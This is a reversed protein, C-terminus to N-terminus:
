HLSTLKLLLNRGERAYHKHFVHCHAIWELELLNHVAAAVQAGQYVHGLAVVHERLIRVGVHGLSGGGEEVLHGLDQGGLLLALEEQVGRGGCASGGRSAVGCRGRCLDGVQPVAERCGM